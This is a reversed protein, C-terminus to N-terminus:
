KNPTAPQLSQLRILTNRAGPSDNVIRTAAVRTPQPFEPENMLCAQALATRLTTPALPKPEPTVPKISERYLDLLALTSDITAQPHYNAERNDESWAEPPTGTVVPMLLEYIPSLLERAASVSVAERDVENDSSVQFGLEELVRSCELPDQKEKGDQSDTTSTNAETM